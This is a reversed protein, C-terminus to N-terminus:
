SLTHIHTHTHWERLLYEAADQDYDADDPFHNIQSCVGRKLGSFLCLLLLPPSSSSPWLLFGVFVYLCFAGFCYIVFTFALFSSSLCPFLFSSSFLFKLFHPCVLFFFTLIYLYIDIYRYIFISLYIFIYIYLYLYISVHIYICSYLSLSIFILFIVFALLTLSILVFPGIVCCFVYARFTQLLLLLFFAFGYSSDHWM